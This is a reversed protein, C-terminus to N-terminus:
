LKSRISTSTWMLRYKIKCRYTKISYALHITKLRNRNTKLTQSKAQRLISQERKSKNRM